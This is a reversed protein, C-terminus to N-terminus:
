LFSVGIFRRTSRGRGPSTRPRSRCDSSWTPASTPVWKDPRRGCRTSTRPWFDSVACYRSYMTPRRWGPSVPRFSGSCIGSPTGSAGSCAVCRRVSRRSVSIRRGPSGSATSTLGSRAMPGEVSLPSFGDVHTEDAVVGPTPRLGVVGCYAAPTRLSGGLDSGNALPLMSTALAVASGGSSGGCTKDPDFPNGTAGYVENRTNAGAGFEPTNTKATILGGAARIRAVVGCDAGPVNGSFLPSGYTTVLGATENLDKIGIPLGHLLGLPEGAAVARAAAGAARRAGTEDIAVVANLAPNVAEIRALCSELVEPPSIEGSGILRRLEVAPLDCLETDENRM